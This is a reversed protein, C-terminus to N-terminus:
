NEGEGLFDILRRRMPLSGRLRGRELLSIMSPSIGIGLGDLLRSLKELTLGKRERYNRLAEGLTREQKAIPIETVHGM